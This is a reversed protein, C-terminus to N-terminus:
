FVERMLRRRLADIEREAEARDRAYMSHIYLYRRDESIDMALTGPTLTIANALATVQVDTLGEIDYRIIRPTQYHTPTLIEWAIQFNAKILIRLFYFSFALLHWVKLGYGETETVRSYLGLVLYGVVFGATLTYFDFRGWLFTWILALMINLLFLKM